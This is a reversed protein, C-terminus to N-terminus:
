DVASPAPEALTAVAERYLIQANMWDHDFAERPSGGDEGPPYRGELVIRAGELADRAQDSSGLRHHSM